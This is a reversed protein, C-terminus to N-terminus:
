SLNCYRQEEDDDYPNYFQKFEAPILSQIEAYIGTPTEPPPSPPAEVPRLRRKRRTPMVKKQM